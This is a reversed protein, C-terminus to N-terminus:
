RPREAFLRFETFAVPCTLQKWEPGEERHTKRTMTSENECGIVPAMPQAWCALPIGRTASTCCKGKSSLLIFPKKVFKKSPRKLAARWFHKTQAPEVFFESTSCATTPSVEASPRTHASRESLAHSIPSLQRMQAPLAAPCLPLFIPQLLITVPPSFLPLTLLCRMLVQVHPSNRIYNPQLARQKAAASRLRSRASWFRSPFM